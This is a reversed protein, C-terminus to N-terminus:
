EKNWAPENVHGMRTSSTALWSFDDNDVMVVSRKSWAIPFICLHPTYTKELQRTFHMKLISWLQASKWSELLLFHNKANPGLGQIIPSLPPSASWFPNGFLTTPTNEVPAKTFFPLMPHIMIFQTAFAHHLLSPIAPNLFIRCPKSYAHHFPRFFCPSVPFSHCHESLYHFMTFDRQIKSNWWIKPWKVM